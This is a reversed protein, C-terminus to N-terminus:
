FICIWSAWKPCIPEKSGYGFIFVKQLFYVSMPPESSYNLSQVFALHDTRFDGGSHTLPHKLVAFIKTTSLFGSAQLQVGASDDPIIDWNSLYASVM